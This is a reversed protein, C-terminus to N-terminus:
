RAGEGLLVVRVTLLLTILDLLLSHNKVYYLDYELKRVADEVSAGYSYRVQAWGTLGPKVAHRVAYFPVHRSLQAVFFPREPRPGVFSMEGRLINFIQPLEDIRGRRLFRGVRTIRPDGSAAWRPVGDREADPRMSRFKFLMFSRGALGIREQRFVIPRGSEIYIAAAAILMIPAALLLLASAALLDFARKVTRRALGQQFGKGYILWSAKLSELHVAGAVREFLAPLDTVPVGQLRCSLLADLPLRGGRQERMAVVIERIRLRRITQQLPESPPLIRERAVSVPHAPDSQYFGIVQVGRHALRALTADVAAAEPGTGLVLVRHSLAGSQAGSLAMRVAVLGVAGMVVADPISAALPTIPPFLAFLAHCLLAGLAMSLLFRGVFPLVAEGRRPRHLGCVSAPLLLSLAFTLHAAVAWPMGQPLGPHHASAVILFAASFVCAVLLLELLAILAIRRDLYTLV